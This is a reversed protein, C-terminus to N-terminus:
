EGLTRLTDEVAKDMPDQNKSETDSKDHVGGTACTFAKGTVGYDERVRYLKQVEEPELTRVKGLLHATLLSDAAHEIKEMKFYADILNVGVTVAGHRDLMLADCNRILERIVESGEETAPTAYRTTPVGGISYVVEPLVCDALSIGALTFGIAKPPHAHVVAQVDPREEYAALHTKFESTVRGEGQLKNGAGDAVILDRPDMTGKSVASPTCLYRDAGLRCSINGDTAAVFNKEWMRRGIDCITKRLDLETTV